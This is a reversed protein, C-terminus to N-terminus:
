LSITENTRRLQGRVVDLVVKRWIVDYNPPAGYRQRGFVFRTPSEFHSCFGWAYHSATRMLTSLDGVVARLSLRHILTGERWVEILSMEPDYDLPVFNGHCKVLHRGDDSVFVHRHWGPLVWLDIQEGEPGKRYVRGDTDPNLDICIKGNPSCRTSPHPPRLISSDGIANLPGALSGVAFILFAVVRTMEQKAWRYNFTENCYLKPWFRTKPPFSRTIWGIRRQPPLTATPRLEAIRSHGSRHTFPGERRTNRVGPTTLAAPRNGYSNM